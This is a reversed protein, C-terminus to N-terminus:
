LDVEEFPTGDAIWTGSEPLTITRSKPPTITVTGTGNNKITLSQCWEPVEVEGSGSEITVVMRGKM